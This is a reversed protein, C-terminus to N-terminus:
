VTYRQKLKKNGGGYVPKKREGTEKEGEKKKREKLAYVELSTSETKIM